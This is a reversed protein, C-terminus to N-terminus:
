LLHRSSFFRQLFTKLFKVIFMSLTSLQWVMPLIEPLHYATAELVIVSSDFMSVHVWGSLDDREVLAHQYYATQESALLATVRSGINLICWRSLIILIFLQERLVVYQLILGPNESFLLLIYFNKQFPVTKKWELTSQPQLVDLPFHARASFFLAWQLNVIFIGQCM